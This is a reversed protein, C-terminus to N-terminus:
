QKGSRRGPQRWSPHAAVSWARDFAYSTIRKHKYKPRAYEKRAQEKTLRPHEPLMMLFLCCENLPFNAPVANKLLWRILAQRDAEVDFYTSFYTHKKCYIENGFVRVDAEHNLSEEIREFAQAYREFAPAYESIRRRGRVPVERSRVGNAIASQLGNYFDGYVGYMSFAKRFPHGCRAFEFYIDQLARWEPPRDDKM